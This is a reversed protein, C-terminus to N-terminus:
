LLSPVLLVTGPVCVIVVLVAVLIVIFPILEKLCKMYDLKEIACMTILISGVPPTLNGLMANLIVVVGFHVLDMGALQVLPLVMPVFLMINVTPDSVMGLVFFLVNVLLIILAPNEGAVGSMMNFLKEQAGMNTLVFGVAKGAPIILLVSGMTVFVNKFSSILEKSGINRYIILGLLLAYCVALAAAETTTVIGTYIAGLLIVPTLLPLISRLFAYLLDRFFHRWGCWAKQPYHRKISVIYIYVMLSLGMLLGPVIGGFFLKAVSTNSVMSYIVMPISPPIIPGILSSAMTVSASFEKGYGEKVMSNYCLDGIGGVDALASGSMGAFIVSTVCNVHGLGGPIYGVVANCFDFLRQSVTSRNMIEATLIFLPVSILAYSNLGSFMNITLTTLPLGNTMIHLFSSLLMALAVPMGLLMLGFFILIFLYFSM